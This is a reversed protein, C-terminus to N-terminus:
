VIGNFLNFIDDNSSDVEPDQVPIDEPISKPESTPKPLGVKVPHIILKNMKPNSEDPLMDLNILKIGRQRLNVLIKLFDEININIATM